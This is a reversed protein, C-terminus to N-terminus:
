VDWPNLETSSAVVGPAAFILQITGDRTLLAGVVHAGAQLAGKVARKVDAQTFRARSRAM